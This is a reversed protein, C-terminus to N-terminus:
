AAAERRLAYRVHAVDDPRREIPRGRRIHYAIASRIAERSQRYGLRARLRDVTLGEPAAALAALIAQVVHGRPPAGHRRRWDRMYAAKCPRCCWWREGHPCPTYRTM